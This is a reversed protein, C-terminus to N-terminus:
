KVRLTYPVTNGKQERTELEMDRKMKPILVKDYFDILRKNDSNFYITNPSEIKLVLYICDLVAAFVNGSYSTNRFDYGDVNRHFEFWWGDDIKKSTFYYKEDDIIFWLVLEHGINTSININTKGRTFVETIYRNVMDNIMMDDM